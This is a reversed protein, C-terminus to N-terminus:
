PRDCRRTAGARICATSYTGQFAAAAGRSKKERACRDIPRQVAPASHWFQASEPVERLPDEKGWDAESADEAGAESIRKAASLCGAKRTYKRVVASAM